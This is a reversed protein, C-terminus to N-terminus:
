PVVTNEDCYKIALSLFMPMHKEALQQHGIIDTVEKVQLEMQPDGVPKHSLFRIIILAQSLIDKLETISPVSGPVYYEGYDEPKSAGVNWGAWAVSLGLDVWKGKTPNQSSGSDPSINSGMDRECSNAIIFLPLAFLILYKKM